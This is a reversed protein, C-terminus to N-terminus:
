KIQIAERADELGSRVIKGQRFVGIEAQPILDGKADFSLPGTIGELRTSQLANFWAEPNAGPATRGAADAIIMAMDYAYAHTFSPVHKFRQEFRRIWAARPEEAADLVFTTSILRIGEIEEPRFFPAADAIDYSALTNGDHILKLTNLARVLGLYSEQFGCLVILEPKFRQVQLAEDRFDAKDFPYQRILVDNFGKSKLGPLVNNLYHEDTHPLQPYIIAIRQPKRAEAYALILPAEARFSVWTRFNNEGSDRISNDYIWVFHPIKQPAVLDRIAMFQPKVGSVYLAPKKLIQRRYVSVAEKPDSRNDDWDYRVQASTKPGLEEQAFTVGKQISSGYVAHPGTLPVNCAVMAQVVEAKSDVIALFTVLVAIFPIFVNM